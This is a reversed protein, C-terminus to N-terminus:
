FPMDDQQQNDQATEAAAANTNVLDVLTKVLASDGIAHAWAMEDALQAKKDTPALPLRSITQCKMLERFLMDVHDFRPEGARRGVRVAIAMATYYAAAIKSVTPAPSAASSKGSASALDDFELATRGNKTAVYSLQIVQGPKLGMIRDWKEGQRGAIVSEVTSSGDAQVEAIALQGYRSNVVKPNSIVKFRAM